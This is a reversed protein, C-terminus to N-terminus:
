PKLADAKASRSRTHKEGPIPDCVTGANRPGGGEERRGGGEGRRWPSLEGVVEDGMKFLMVRAAKVTWGVRRPMHVRCIYRVRRQVKAYDGKKDCADRDLTGGLWTLWRGIV